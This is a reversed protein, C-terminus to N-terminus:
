KSNKPKRRPKPVVDWGMNEVAKLTEHELSRDLVCQPNIIDVEPRILRMQDTFSEIQRWCSLPDAYWDPQRLPVCWANVGICALVTAIYM